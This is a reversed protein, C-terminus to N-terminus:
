IRGILSQVLSLAELFAIFYLAVFAMVGARMVDDMHRLLTLTLLLLFILMGATAVLGPLVSLNALFIVPPSPAQLKVFLAFLALALVVSYLYWRWNARVIRSIVLYFGTLVLVILINAVTILLGIVLAGVLLIALDGIPNALGLGLRAWVSPPGIARPSFRSVELRTPADSPTNQWFVGPERGTRVAIPTDDAGGEFAVRDPPGAVRGQRDLQVTAVVDGLNGPQQWILERHPDHIALALWEPQQSATVQPGLALHSGNWGAVRIGPDSSWAAWVQRGVPQVDLGWFNPTSNQGVGGLSTITDVIQRHLVRGDPALYLDVMHYDQGCCADMYLLHINGSADAAAHPNFAYSSAHTLRVPPLVMGGPRIRQLFVDFNSYRQWSFVVDVDGGDVFAAPHEMLWRGTGPTRYLPARGPRVEAFRLMSGNGADQIWVAYDTAGRRALALAQPSGSLYVDPQLRKESADLRSLRMRNNQDVWLVDQGSSTSTVAYPNNSMGTLVTRPSAWHVSWDRTAHGSLFVLACVVLIAALPAIAALPHRRLWQIM